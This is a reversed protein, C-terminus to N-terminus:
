AKVPRALFVSFKGIGWYLAIIKIHVKVTCKKTCTKGHMSWGPSASLQKKNSATPESAVSM